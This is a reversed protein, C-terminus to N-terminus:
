LTPAVLSAIPDSCFDVAFSGAPRHNGSHGVGGFPLSSSAGTLPRNWNIVGARVERRFREFMERSGGVLGASLGFRTAGALGIAQDFDPVYHLQLLPGFWEEDALVGCNTVDVLGCRVLTPGWSGTSFEIPEMACLAKGGAKIWGAQVRLLHEVASPSILPGIKPTPQDSPVGYTTSQIRRVLGEVVDRGYADDVVMLRRACTCRQGSSAYASDFILDTAAAPDNAADQDPAAVVMPNSGGMELALLVEPRGALQRHISQGAAHSGVFFVGAVRPDGILWAAVRRDGQVLNLVGPPLGADTWRDVIWRGVSPTLESPKFLVSNGALLAPVIHGGPLHAPFNFPGLVVVPGIPRYRTQALAGAVPHDSDARRAAQADITIQVKAIVAKVEGAADSPLKGTELTILQALEDQRQTVEHAFRQLMAAREDLPTLEWPRQAAVAAAVALSAQSADAAHGDFVLGGDAPNHSQLVAGQGALNQHNIWLCEMPRADTM